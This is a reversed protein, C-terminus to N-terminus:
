NDDLWDRHEQKVTADDIDFNFLRASLVLPVGPTVNTPSVEIKGPGTPHRMIRGKKIVFSVAARSSESGPTPPYVTSILRIADNEGSAAALGLLLHDPGGNGRCAGTWRRSPRM